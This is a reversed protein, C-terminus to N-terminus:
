FYVFLNFYVESPSTQFFTQAGKSVSFFQNKELLSFWIYFFEEGKSLQLTELNFMMDWSPDVRTMIPVCAVFLNDFIM